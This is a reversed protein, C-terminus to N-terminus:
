AISKLPEVRELGTKRKFNMGHKFNALAASTDVHKLDLRALTEKVAQMSLIPTLEQHGSQPNLMLARCTIFLEEVPLIRFLDNAVRLAVGAVYDRYLENVRSVAMKTESLRGGQTLKLQTSPVIDTDHVTPIAHVFHEGFQFAVSKGVLGDGSFLKAEEVVQKLATPEGKLVRAAFATDTEWESLSNKHAGVLGAFQQEDQRSAEIVAERLRQHKRESGGQLFDFFSPKFADLKQQALNKRYSIPQPEPPRAENAIQNWDIKDVTDTRIRTLGDVYEQWADVAEAASAALQAKLAIKQRRQAERDAARAAAVVSRLTGRWGM